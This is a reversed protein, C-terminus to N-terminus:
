FQAEVGVTLRGGLPWSRFIPSDERFVYTPRWLPVVADVHVPFRLWATAKFIVTGGAGLGFWPTGQSSVQISGVGRGRVAGLEAELCPGFDVATGAAVWCGLLTGAYFRFSGYAGGTDAVPDTNVTRLGYAGRLEARWHGHLLGITATVGVDPGPL